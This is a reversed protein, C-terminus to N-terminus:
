GLTAPRIGRARSMISRMEKMRARSDCMGKTHPEGRAQYCHICKDEEVVASGSRLVADLQEFTEALVVIDNLRLLLGNVREFAGRAQDFVRAVQQFLDAVQAKLDDRYADLLGEFSGDAEDTSAPKETSQSGEDGGGEAEVQLEDEEEEVVAEDVSGSM